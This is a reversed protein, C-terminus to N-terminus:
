PYILFRAIEVMAESLKILDLGNANESHESLLQLQKGPMENLKIYTKDSELDEGGEMNCKM